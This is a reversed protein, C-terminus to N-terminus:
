RAEAIRVDEFGLRRLADVARAADHARAARVRLALPEAEGPAGRATAAEHAAAELSGLADLDLVTVTASGDRAAEDSGGCASVLGCAMALLLTAALAGVIAPLAAAAARARSLTFPNSPM